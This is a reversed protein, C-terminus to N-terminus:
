SASTSSPPRSASAPRRSCRTPSSSSPTTPRPARRDAGRHDRHRDPRAGLRARGDLLVEPRTAIARAICLRQQQGGSLGTGSEQLRDKVENWLGARKLSSTVIAELDAKSRAMGHISRATPSTRSSRSRSRTPSRSCWASAPASSSWTSARTTSTWATSSSRAPRGARDPHHREDPQHLAPLDVQRLRLPRDARDGPEGPHRPRHRLAGAERRLLARRRPDLGQRQQHRGAAPAAALAPRPDTMITTM